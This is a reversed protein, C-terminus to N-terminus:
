YAAKTKQESKIVSKVMHDVGVESSFWWKLWLSDKLGLKRQIEIHDFGQHYITVVKGYFDELYNLKSQLAQKGGKIVPRHACFLADFDYDLIKKISNIMDGISEEPRMLKIHGIYLDGSFLWGRNKELFVYHDPSHGPTFIPTFVCNKSEIQDPLHEIQGAYTEINGFFIHAYPKISFGKKVKKATEWGAYVQAQHVAQLAKLNGTHDEHYHTLLIKEIKKQSLRAIVYKALNHQATDILVGDVYYCTVMVTPRGWFLRMFQFGEVGQHEFSKLLPM